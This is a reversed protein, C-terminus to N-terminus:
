RENEGTENENGRGKKQGELSSSFNLFCAKYNNPSTLFTLHQRV